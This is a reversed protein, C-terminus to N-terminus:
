ARPHAQLSLPETISRLWTVTRPRHPAINPWRGLLADLQPRSPIRALIEVPGCVGQHFDELDLHAGGDALRELTLEGTAHYWCARYRNPGDRWDHGLELADGRRRPDAHLFDAYRVYATVGAPFDSM